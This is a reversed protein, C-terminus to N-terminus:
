YSLSTKGPELHGVDTKPIRSDGTEKLTINEGRIFLNGLIIKEAARDVYVVMPVEKDMRVVILKVMYFDPISSERKEVFKVEVEEPLEAQIKVTEIARRVINDERAVNNIRLLLSILLLGMIGFFIKAM